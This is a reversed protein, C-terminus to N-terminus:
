SKSNPLVAPLPPLDTTTPMGVGLHRAPALPLLQRARSLATLTPTYSSIVQDLVCDSSGTAATRHRPHHGAAHIPLVTLTRDPVM